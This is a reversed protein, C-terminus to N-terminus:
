YIIAEIDKTKCYFDSFAGISPSIPYVQMEWGFFSSM